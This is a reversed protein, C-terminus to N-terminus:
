SGDAQTVRLHATLLLHDFEPQAGLRLRAGRFDEAIQEALPRLKINAEQSLWKLLEFAASASIGYVLMLM